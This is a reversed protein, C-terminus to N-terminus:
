RRLQHSRVKLFMLKNFGKKGFFFLMGNIPSLYYTLVNRHKADVLLSIEITSYISMVQAAFPM